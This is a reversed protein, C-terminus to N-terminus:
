KHGNFLPVIRQRLMIVLRIVYGAVERVIGFLM